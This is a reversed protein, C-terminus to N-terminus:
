RGGGGTAAYLRWWPCPWAAGVAALVLPALLVAPVFVVAQARTAFALGIARPPAALADM